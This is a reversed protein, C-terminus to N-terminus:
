DVNGLRMAQVFLRRGQHAPGLPRGLWALWSDSGGPVATEIRQVVADMSYYAHKGARSKTVKDANVSTAIGEPPSANSQLDYQSLDTTAGAAVSDPTQAAM